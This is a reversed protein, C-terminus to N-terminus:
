FLEMIKFAVDFIIGPKGKRSNYVIGVFREKEEINLTEIKLGKGSLTKSGPFDYKTICNERDKFELGYFAFDEDFTYTM